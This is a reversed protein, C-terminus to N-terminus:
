LIEFNILHDLHRRSTTYVYPYTFHKLQKDTFVTRFVSVQIMFTTILDEKM